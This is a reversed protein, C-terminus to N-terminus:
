GGASRIRGVEPAKVVIVPEPTPPKVEEEEEEESEPEPEPPPTPPPPLPEQFLNGRLREDMTSTIVFQCRITGESKGKQPQSQPQTQSQLPQGKEDLKCLPCDLKLQKSRSDKLYRFLEEMTWQRQGMAYEETEAKDGSVAAKRIRLVVLRVQLCAGRLRGGEHSRQAFPEVYDKALTAAYKTIKFKPSTSSTLAIDTVIKAIEVVTHPQPPQPQQQAPPQTGPPPATATTTTTTAITTTPTSTAIGSGVGGSPDGKLVTGDHILAMEIRLFYMAKTPLQISELDLTLDM